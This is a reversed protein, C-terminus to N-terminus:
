GNELVLPNFSGSAGGAGVPSLVSPGADNAPLPLTV